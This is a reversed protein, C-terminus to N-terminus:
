NWDGLCVFAPMTYIHAATGPCAATNNCPRNERLPGTCQTSYTSTMCSRTRTQLGEGCSVSCVAWSSWTDQQVEEAAYCLTQNLVVSGCSGSQKRTNCFLCVGKQPAQNALVTGDADRRQGIISRLGQSRQRVQGACILAFGCTLDSLMSTCESHHM